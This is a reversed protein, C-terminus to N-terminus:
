LESLKKAVRRNDIRELEFPSPAMHVLLTARSEFLSVLAEGVQLGMAQYAFDDGGQLAEAAKKAVALSRHLMVIKSGMNQIVADPIQSISQVLLVISHDRSRGERTIQTFFYILGPQETEFIRQGEDVYQVIGVAHAPDARYMHASRLFFRGLVGYSQNSIAPAYAIRIVRGPTVVDELRFPEVRKPQPSNRITVLKGIADLWPFRRRRRKLKQLTALKTKENLQDPPTSELVKRVEDLDFDGIGKEKLFDFAESFAEYQLEEGRKPDFFLGSLERASFDSSRLGIVKDVSAPDCENYFGVSYVDPVGEARLGVSAFKQWLSTVKPDSNKERMRGYDPKPDHVIVCKGCRCGQLIINAGANSKGCGNSGGISTHTNFLEPTWCLPADGMNTILGIANSKLNDQNFAPLQLYSFLDAQDAPTVNSGPNPGVRISHIRDESIEGQLLIRYLYRSKISRVNKQSQSLALGQILIPNLPDNGLVPVNRSRELIQGLWQRGTRDIVIVYDMARFDEGNEHIAIVYRLDLSRDDHITHM